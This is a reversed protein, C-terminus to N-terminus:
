FPEHPKIKPFITLVTVLSVLILPILFRPFWFNNFLVLPVIFNIFMTLEFISRRLRFIKAEKIASIHKGTLFCGTSIMLTDLFKGQPARPRRGCLLLMPVMPVLFGYYGKKALFGYSGFVMPVMSKEVVVFAYSGNRHNRHNGHPYICCQSRIMSNSPRWCLRQSM